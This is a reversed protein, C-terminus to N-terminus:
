VFFYGSESQNLQKVAKEFIIFVLLTSFIFVLSYASAVTRDGSQLYPVMLLSFTKVQGGGILLTLFYQSFSIIYAMCASSIIGPLLAPLTIYLMIQKSSAGLTLAQEELRSGLATTVDTMIKISYPLACILHVLIVGAVHDAFGARILLVHIGMAFVTGPIIIPLIAGFSIAQKGFFDYFVLARATMTGIIVALFAVTLSLLISSGLTQLAGSYGGFLEAIGRLSLSAPLLHPWPWRGIWSWLAIIVIPFLVSSLFLLLYIRSILSTKKKM